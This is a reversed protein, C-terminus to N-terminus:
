KLPGKELVVNVSRIQFAPVSLDGSCKAQAFELKEMLKATLKGKFDQPPQLLPAAARVPTM